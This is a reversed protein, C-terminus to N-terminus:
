NIKGEPAKKLKILSLRLHANLRVMVAKRMKMLNKILPLNIFVLTKM